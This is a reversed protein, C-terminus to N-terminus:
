EWDMGDESQEDMSRGSVQRQVTVNCGRLTGGCFLRLVAVNPYDPFLLLYRRTVVLAPGATRRGSIPGASKKSLFFQVNLHMDVGVSALQKNDM